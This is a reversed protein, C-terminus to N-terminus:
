EFRVLDPDDIKQKPLGTISPLESLKPLGYVARVVGAKTKWVLTPTGNSGFRTMLQGNGRIRVLNAAAPKKSPAIGGNETAKNFRMENERFAAEPDKAQMIAAAKAASDPKLFTVPIWRVQLGAREYPQLAKWTLHCYICNPDFFVYLISKAHRVAGEVIYGTSGLGGFLTAYDPKPIFKAAYGSTLDVGSKDMLMGIILTKGDPTTFVMTYRGGKSLVWGTLGSAAPFERVMTMGTHIASQIPPPYDRPVPGSAVSSAAPFCCFILAAFRALRGTM